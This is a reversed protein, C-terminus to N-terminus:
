KTQLLLADRCTVAVALAQWCHGSIGYLPGQERRTGVQPIKGGGTPEYMDILAQRVNSDGAKPSKCVHECISPIDGNSQKRYLRIAQGGSASHAEVLRGIWFVTEFTERGVPMGYSAVMEIAVESGGYYGDILMKRLTENTCYGHELVETGDIWVWGSKETGPDIGVVRPGIPPM